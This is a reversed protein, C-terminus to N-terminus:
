LLTVGIVEPRSVKCFALVAATAQLATSAVSVFAPQLEPSSQLRGQLHSVWGVLSTVCVQLQQSPVPSECM